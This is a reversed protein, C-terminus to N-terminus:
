KVANQLTFIFKSGNGPESEIRIKGGNREVFEKCLPLGLGTGREGSTGHTTYITTFDFLTSSIEPDIGIGTDCISVEVFKNIIKASISIEGGEPTFKIANIILNQIILQLMNADAYVLIEKETQNSVSINKRLFNHNSVRIIKEITYNININEPKFSILDRQLMSWHLLNELLGYLNNLIENLAGSFQLIEEHSLKETETALLESYKLLAEFPSRLDHAIISFFKDKTGNLEKLEENTKNLRDEVKKFETLDILAVQCKPDPELTDELKIGELLVQLLNKDKNMIKLHCAQKETSSFVDNLFSLFVERADTPIFTIIKRGILKKREFGLIKGASLNVEEIVGDQDLTFYPTPSFDFLNVYKNRSVELEVQAIRLEENQHELEVQHVQLLHVLRQVDDMEKIAPKKIKAIKKVPRKKTTAKVAGKKVPKM